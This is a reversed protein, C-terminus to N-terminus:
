KIVAAAVGGAVLLAMVAIAIRTLNKEIHPM